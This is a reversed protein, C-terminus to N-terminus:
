PCGSSEPLSRWVDEMRLMHLYVARTESALNRTRHFSYTKLIITQVIALRLGALGQSPEGAVRTCKFCPGSLFRSADENMATGCAQSVFLPSVYRVM